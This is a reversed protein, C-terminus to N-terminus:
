GVEQRWGRLAHENSEGQERRAEDQQEQRQQRLTLKDLASLRRKKQQWTQRSKEIGAQLEVLVQQQQQIAADLRGLFVQFDKMQMAHLGNRSKFQLGQHYEERYSVLEALKEEAAALASLAAALERAAVQEKEQAMKIVPQLRRTNKM